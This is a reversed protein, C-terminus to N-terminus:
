DAKIGARKIVEAWKATDKKIQSTFQAPTGGVLDNGLTAYKDKVHQLSMAANFEKNLRAVIAPSTGAPVVIGGWSVSEFGPVGAEAVTPLEQFAAVRKSSTVAVGQLKGSKVHQGVSSVNEFMLHVRGGILDTLALTAAKFPVHTMRIGAMFKFLEGTLHQSAGSGTSAFLLKDPNAQAYEILGKVTTVPLSKSTALLNPTSTVQVVAQLEKDPDYPLNAQVSRQIAIPGITGFGITYGDPPAKAMLTTGIVSGAGPRNDVVVQQGVQKTLEAAFIRANIDPTGGAGSSVIFRIPRDPYAALVSTFGSVILVCLMAFVNRMKMVKEILQAECRIAQRCEGM